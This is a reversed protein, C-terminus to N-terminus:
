LNFVRIPRCLGKDMCAIAQLVGQELIQVLQKSTQSHNQLFIQVGNRLFRVQDASVEIALIDGLGYTVPLLHKQIEDNHVINMLNALM